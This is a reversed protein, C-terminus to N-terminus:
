YAKEIVQIPLYSRPMVIYPSSGAIPRVVEVHSAVVSSKAWFIMALGLMTAAIAFSINKRM